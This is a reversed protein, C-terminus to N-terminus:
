EARAVAECWFRAVFAGPHAGWETWARSMEDLEEATALGQAVSREVTSPHRFLSATFAGFGRAQEDNAHHIARASGEVNQFGAEHLLHRLRRGVFPSTGDRLRRALEMSRSLVPNTPYLLEGDWDADVVGIVAGPRAVRRAERLPALADAARM